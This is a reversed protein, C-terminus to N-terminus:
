EQNAPDMFFGVALTAILAAERDEHGEPPLYLLPQARQHDMGAIAVGNEDRIVYGPVRGTPLGIGSL